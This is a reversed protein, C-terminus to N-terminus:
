ESGGEGKTIVYYTFSGNRNTAYSTHQPPYCPILPWGYLVDTFKQGNGRSTRMKQFIM